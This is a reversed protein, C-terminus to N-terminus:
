LATAISLLITGILIIMGALSIYNYAMSAQDGMYKDVVGGVIQGGDLPKIPLMNVLGIGVNLIGITKFLSIFWMLFGRYPKLPENLERTM